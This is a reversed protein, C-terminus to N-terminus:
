RNQLERKQAHSLPGYLVFFDRFILMYWVAFPLTKSHTQSHQQTAPTAQKTKLLIEQTFLSVADNWDGGTHILSEFVDQKCKQIKHQHYVAIKYVCYSFLYCSNSLHSVQQHPTKKWPTKLTDSLTQFLISVWTAFTMHLTNYLWLLLSRKVLRWLTLLNYCPVCHLTLRNDYLDITM